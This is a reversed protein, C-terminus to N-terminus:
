LIERNRRLCSHYLNPSPSTFSEKFNFFFIFSFPPVPYQREPGPLLPAKLLTHPPSLESARSPAARSFSQSRRAIGDSGEGFPLGPGGARPKFAGSSCRRQRHLSPAPASKWHSLSLSHPIKLELPLGLLPIVLRLPPPAPSGWPTRLERRKGLLGRGGGRARGCWGSRAPSRAPLPTAM